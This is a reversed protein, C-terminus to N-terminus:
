NLLTEASEVDGIYAAHHLATWGNSDINNVNAHCEYVIAKLAESKNEERSLVAKHIPAEGFISLKKDIKNGCNVLYKVDKQDAQSAAKNLDTLVNRTHQDKGVELPKTPFAASSAESGKKTLLRAAKFDGVFSAIHLPSHNNNDLQNLCEKLLLAVDNKFEKIISNYEKPSM